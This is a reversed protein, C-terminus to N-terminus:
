KEVRKKDFVARRLRKREAIITWLYSSLRKQRKEATLSLELVDIFSSSFSNPYYFYNLNGPGYDNYTKILLFSTLTAILYSAGTYKRQM